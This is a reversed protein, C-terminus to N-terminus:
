TTRWLRQRTGELPRAATLAMETVGTVAFSALLTDLRVEVATSFEPDEEVAYRHALRLLAATVSAGGPCATAASADDATLTDTSGLRATDADLLELTMLHVQPPLPATLGGAATAVAGEAAADVLGAGEGAAPAADDVAFAAVVPAFLRDMLPRVERMAGKVASLLLYHSGRVALGDGRREWVPWAGIGADTENLPEGVGRDDDALVR